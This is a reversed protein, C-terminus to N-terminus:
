PLEGRMLVLAKNNKVILELLGLLLGPSVHDLFRSFAYYYNDLKMLHNVLEIEPIREREMIIHKYISIPFTKIITPSVWGADVLSSKAEELFKERWNKLEIFWKSLQESLPPTCVYNWVVENLICIGGGITEVRWWDEKSIESIIEEPHGYSSRWGSVSHWLNRLKEIAGTYYSLGNIILARYYYSGEGSRYRGFRKIAYSTCFDPFAYITYSEIKGEDSLKPKYYEKLGLKTKLEKLIDVDIRPYIIEM